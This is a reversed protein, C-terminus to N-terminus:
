FLVEHVLRGLQARPALPATVSLEGAGARFAGIEGRHDFYDLLCVGEALREELDRARVLPTSSRHELWRRLSAPAAPASAVGAVSGRSARDRDRALEAAAWSRVQPPLQRRRGRRPSALARGRGRELAEFAEATRGARLELAALEQHPVGWEAWFSARWQ